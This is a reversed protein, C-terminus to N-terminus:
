RGGEEGAVPLKGAAALEDAMAEWTISADGPRAYVRPWAWRYLDRGVLGTVWRPRSKFHGHWWRSMASILQIRPVSSHKSFGYSENIAQWSQGAARAKAIQFVTPEARSPQHWKDLHEACFIGNPNAAPRGCEKCLGKTPEVKHEYPQGCWPCYRWAGKTKICTCAM